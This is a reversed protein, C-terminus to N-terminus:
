RVTALCLAWRFEDTNIFGDKDLDFRAFIAKSPLEDAIVKGDRNRDYREFVGDSEQAIASLCLGFLSFTQVMIPRM